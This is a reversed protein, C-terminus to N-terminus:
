GHQEYTGHPPYTHSRDFTVAWGVIAAVCAVISISIMLVKQLTKM